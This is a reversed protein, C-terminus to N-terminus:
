IFNFEGDHYKYMKFHKEILYTIKLPQRRHIIDQKTTANNCIILERTRQVRSRIIKYYHVGFLINDM